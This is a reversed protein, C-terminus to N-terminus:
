TWGARHITPSIVIIFCVFHRNYSEQGLLSSEQQTESIGLLLRLSSREFKLCVIIKGHIQSFCLSWDGPHLITRDAMPLDERPCIRRAVFVRPYLLFTSPILNHSHSHRPPWSATFRSLPATRPFEKLRCDDPVSDETALSLAPNLNTESWQSTDEASSEVGNIPSTNSRSRPNGYFKKEKSKPPM